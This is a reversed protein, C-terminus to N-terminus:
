IYAAWRYDKYEVKKGYYKMKSVIQGLLVIQKWYVSWELHELVYKVMIYLLKPTGDEAAAVAAALDRWEHRVRHSRVSPLGGPEGTLPIRWALVSPPYPSPPPLLTWSPSCLYVQPLNMEINPLVLVINYLKFIFNFKFFNEPFFFFLVSSHTAM